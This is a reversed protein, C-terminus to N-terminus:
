ADTEPDFAAGLVPIRWAINDVDTLERALIVPDVTNFAFLGWHHVVLRPIGAARCLEVAESLHFNGPVGNGLREADRGNVPLLALDVGLDAIIEHQGQYPACDGSHYIRYGSLDIVYGLFQDQGHRDAVREEHAAPVATVRIGASTTFTEGAALGLLREAPVGRAVGKVSEARPVIFLPDSKTQLYPISGLDMHDTHGHTCLVTSLGSVDAPAVPADHLRTHPFVKGAYKDALADSLYPDIFLLQDGHRIAFGAQGLWWLTVRGAGEPV